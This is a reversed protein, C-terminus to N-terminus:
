KLSFTNNELLLANEFLNVYLLIKFFFERKKSTQLFYVISIFQCFKSIGM